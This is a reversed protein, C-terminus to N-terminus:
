KTYPSADFKPPLVLGIEIGPAKTVTLHLTSM